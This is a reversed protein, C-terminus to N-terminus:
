FKTFMERILGKGFITKQVQTSNSWIAENLKCSTRWSNWCKTDSERKKKKEKKKFNLNKQEEPIKGRRAM